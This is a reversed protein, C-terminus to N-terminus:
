KIFGLIKACDWRGILGNNLMKGMVDLQILPNMIDGYGFDQWTPKTFQAIGWSIGNHPPDILFGSECQIVALMKEYEQGYKEAVAALALKLEERTYTTTPMRVEVVPPPTTKLNEIVPETQGQDGRSPANARGTM